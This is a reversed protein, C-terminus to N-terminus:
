SYWTGYVHKTYPALSNILKPKIATTPYLSERNQKHPTKLFNSHRAQCGDIMPIVM